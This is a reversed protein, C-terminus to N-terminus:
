KVANFCRRFANESTPPVPPLPPLPDRIFFYSRSRRKLFPNGGKGGTGGRVLIRPCGIIKWFHHTEDLFECNKFCYKESIIQGVGFYTARGFFVSFAIKGGTGGMCVVFVDPFHVSKVCQHRADLFASDM